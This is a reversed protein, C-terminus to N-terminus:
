CVFYVCLQRVQRPEIDVPLEGSFTAFYTNKIWCYSNVYDVYRDKDWQAPVWCHIPKGTNM